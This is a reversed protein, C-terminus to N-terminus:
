DPFTVTRASTEDVPAGTMLEILARMESKLERSRGLVTLAHAYDFYANVAEEGAPHTALILGDMYSGLADSVAELASEVAELEQYTHISLNGRLRRALAEVAAVEVPPALLSGSGHDGSLVVETGRTLARTEEYSCYLIM